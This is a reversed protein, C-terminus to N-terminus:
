TCFLMATQLFSLKAILYAKSNDRAEVSAVRKLDRVKKADNKDKKFASAHKGTKVLYLSKIAKVAQTFDLWPTLMVHLVVTLM